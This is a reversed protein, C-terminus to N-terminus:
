RRTVAAVRRSLVERELADLLGCLITKTGWSVLFEPMWFGLDLWAEYSVLTRDGLRQLHYGGYMEDLNGSGQVYAFPVVWTDVGDVRSPYSSVDITWSRPAVPWPAATRGECVSGDAHSGVRRSELIAPFWESTRECDLVVALVEELPADVVGVIEAKTVEGTVVRMGPHDETWSVEVTPSPAPSAALATTVLMAFM